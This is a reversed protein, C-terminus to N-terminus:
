INGWNVGQFEPLDQIGMLNTRIAWPLFQEPATGEVTPLGSPYKYAFDTAAKQIGQMALARSTPAGRTSLYFPNQFAGVQAASAPTDPDAYMGRLPNEVAGSGLEGISGGAPMGLATAIEQLRAALPNGRLLSTDGTSLGRLWNGARSQGAPIETDPIFPSVMGFQNGLFPAAAAIASGVNPIDAYGSTSLFGPFVDKFTRNEAGIGAAGLGPLQMGSGPIVPVGPINAAAPPQAATAMSGLKDETGLGENWYTSDEVRREEWWNKFHNYAEDESGFTPLGNLGAFDDWGQQGQSGFAIKSAARLAKTWDDTDQAYELVFEKINANMSDTVQGAPYSALGPSGALTGGLDPVQNWDLTAATSWEDFGPAGEGSIFQTYIKSLEQVAAQTHGLGEVLLKALLGAAETRIALDGIEALQSTEIITGGKVADLIQQDRSAAGPAAGPANGVVYNAFAAEAATMLGVYEGANKGANPGFYAHVMDPTAAPAATVPTATFPANPPNTSTDGQYMSMIDAIRRGEPTFVDAASGGGGLIDGSTASGAAGIGTSTDTVVTGPMFQGGQGTLQGSIYPREPDVAGLDMQTAVDRTGTVGGAQEAMDLAAQIGSVAAIVDFQQVSIPM